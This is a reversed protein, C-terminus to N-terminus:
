RVSARTRRRLAAIAAGITLLLATAPEPVSNTTGSALADFTVPDVVTFSQAGPLGVGLWDFSVSFGALQHGPAIGAGLALADYFGPDPSGLVLTPDAVIEDWGALPSTVALNTYQGFDFFITLEEIDFSLANDVIYHYEFRSGGLSEVTYTVNAAEARGGLCVTSVLCLCLAASWAKM